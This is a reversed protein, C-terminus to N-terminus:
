GDSTLTHSVCITFSILSPVCFFHRGNFRLSVHTSGRAAHSRRRRQNLNDISPVRTYLGNTSSGPRELYLAPGNRPPNVSPDGMLDERQFAALAALAPHDLREHACRETGPRVQNIRTQQLNSSARFYGIKAELASRSGYIREGHHTGKGAGEGVVDACRPRASTGARTRARSAGLALRCRKTAFRPTRYSPTRPFFFGLLIKGATRGPNATRYATACVM